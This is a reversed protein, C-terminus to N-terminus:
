IGNFFVWVKSAPRGSSWVAGSDKKYKTTTLAAHVVVTTAATAAVGAVCKGSMSATSLDCWSFCRAINVHLNWLFTIQGLNRVKGHGLQEKMECDRKVFARCWSRGLGHLRAKDEFYGLVM